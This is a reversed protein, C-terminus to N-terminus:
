QPNIILHLLWKADKAYLKHMRIIYPVVSGKKTRMKLQFGIVFRTTLPKLVFRWEFNYEQLTKM